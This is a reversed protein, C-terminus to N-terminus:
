LTPYDFILTEPVACAPFTESVRTRFEVSALSDIGVDMLPADGELSSISLFSYTMQNLTNVIADKHM